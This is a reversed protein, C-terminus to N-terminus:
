DITREMAKVLLFVNATSSPHLNTLKIRLLKNEGGAFWTNEPKGHAPVGAAVYVKLLHEGENDWPNVFTSGGDESYQVEAMVLSLSSSLFLEHVIFEKDAPIEYDLTYTGSGSLSISRARTFREISM